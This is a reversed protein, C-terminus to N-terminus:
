RDGRSRGHGSVLHHFAELRALLSAVGWFMRVEMDFSMM